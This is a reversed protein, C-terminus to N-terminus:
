FYTSVVLPGIQMFKMESNSAEHRSTFPLRIYYEEEGDERCVSVIITEVKQVSSAM